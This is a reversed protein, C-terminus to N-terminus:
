AAAAVAADPEPTQPQSPVFDQSRILSAAAIGGIIAVLGSVIFLTNM